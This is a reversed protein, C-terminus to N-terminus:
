SAYDPRGTRMVRNAFLPPLQRSCVVEDLQGFGIFPAFGRERAELAGRVYCFEYTGSEDALRLLRGVPFIRRSNPERWTVYLAPPLYLETM